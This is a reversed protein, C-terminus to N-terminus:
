RGSTTAVFALFFFLTIMLNVTATLRFFFVEYHCRPLAHTGATELLFLPLFEKGLQHCLTYFV